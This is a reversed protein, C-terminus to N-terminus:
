RERQGGKEVGKNNNLQSSKNVKKKLKLIEWKLLIAIGSKLVRTVVNPEGPYNRGPQPEQRLTVQIAVRVGDTVKM